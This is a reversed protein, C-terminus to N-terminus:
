NRSEFIDVFGTARDEYKCVDLGRALFVWQLKKSHEKVSVWVMLMVRLDLQGVAYEKM